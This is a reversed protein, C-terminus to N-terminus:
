FDPNVEKFKTIYLHTLLVFQYKQMLWFHKTNQKPSQKSSPKAKWTLNKNVRSQKVSELKQYGMKQKIKGQFPWWELTNENCITPSPVSNVCVMGGGRMEGVGILCLTWLVPRVRWIEQSFCNLWHLSPALNVWYSHFKPSKSSNNFLLMRKTTFCKTLLSCTCSGPHSWWVYMRTLLRSSWWVCCLPASYPLPFLQVIEFLASIQFRLSGDHKLNATNVGKFNRLKM